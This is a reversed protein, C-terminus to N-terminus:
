NKVRNLQILSSITALTLGIIFGQIMGVFLTCIFTILLSLGDLPKYKILIIIRKLNILPYVSVIIVAALTALPLYYFISTFFLLTTLIMFMSIINALKTKAGSQYNVATRSLAGAVPISGVFASSINASGLATLERNPHVLQKEKEAISHAIAYSELFSIFAIIFATPILAKMDELNIKPLIFEPVGNPIFGVIATHYPLLFMKNIIPFLFVLILPGPSISTTKKLTILIIISGIGILSTVPHISPLNTILESMYNLVNTQTIREIGLLVDIQHIIIIVAAASIFGNIVHKPIYNFLKGVHFIGLLIQIIGVLFTLQVMAEFFHLSQPKAITFVGAFAILSIISTPGVSLFKSSGILTYILLSTIAAYLGYVPNVGALNAYAMSQPIFLIAVIIGATLDSSFSHRIHHNRFHQISTHKLAVFTRREITQGKLFM